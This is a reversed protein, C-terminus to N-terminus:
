SRAKSENVATEREVLEPDIQKLRALEHPLLTGSRLRQRTSDFVDIDLADALVTISHYFFHLLGTMGVVFAILLWQELSIIELNVATALSPALPVGDIGFFYALAPGVGLFIISMFPPRYPQDCAHSVLLKSACEAFISGAAGFFLWPHVNVVNRAPTWFIWLTCSVHLLWIASQRLLARIVLVGPRSQNKKVGENWVHMAAQVTNWIITIASAFFTLGVPIDVLLVPDTSLSSPSYVSRLLILLPKFVLQVPVLVWEPLAQEIPLQWVKASNTSFGSILMFICAMILGESPGNFWPLIFKNLHFEEWTNMFFVTVSIGWFAFVQWQTISCGTTLAFILTGFLGTNISDCGHDFLLGLPSSAKVRRAQKGDM